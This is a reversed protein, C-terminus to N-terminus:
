DDSVFKDVFTMIIYAILWVSVGAVLGALPSILGFAVLAVAGAAYPIVETRFLSRLM